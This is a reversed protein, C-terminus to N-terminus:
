LNALCTQQITSCIGNQFTTCTAPTAINVARCVDPTQAHAVGLAASLALVLLLLKM